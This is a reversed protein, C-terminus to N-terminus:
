SRMNKSVQAHKVLEAKLEQRQGNKLLEIIRRHENPSQAIRLHNNHDFFQDYFILYINTKDLLIEAFESFYQNNAKQVITLHFQKNISLYQEIDKQFSALEEKKVLEELLIVDETTLHDL